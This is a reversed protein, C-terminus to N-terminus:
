QGIGITCLLGLLAVGWFVIAEWAQDVVDVVQAPTPGDVLQQEQGRGGLM